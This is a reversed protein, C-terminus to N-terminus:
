KQAECASTDYVGVNKCTRCSSVQDAKCLKITQDREADESAARKGLETVLQKIESHENADVPESAMVENVSFVWSKTITGVGVAAAGVITGVVALIAGKTIKTM